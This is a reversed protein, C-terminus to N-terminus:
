RYAGEREQNILIDISSNCVRLVQYPISLMNISLTKRPNVWRKKNNGTQWPNVLITKENFGERRREIIAPPSLGTGGMAHCPPCSAEVMGGEEEVKGQPEEEGMRVQFNPHSRGARPRPGGGCLLLSLM